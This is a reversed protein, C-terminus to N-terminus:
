AVQWLERIEEPLQASIDEIEGETIQEKLTHLVATALQEAGVPLQRKDIENQILSYLEQKKRYRLQHQGSISLFSNIWTNTNWLNKMDQSLQASAQRSEDPTLRHSLLSFIIAAGEEAMDASPLNTQEQIKKLFEGKKM